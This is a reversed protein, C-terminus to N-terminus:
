FVSPSFEEDEDDDDTAICRRYQQCIDCGPLRGVNDFKMGCICDPLGTRTGDEYRLKTNLDLGYGRVWVRSGPEFTCSVVMEDEIARLGGIQRVVFNQMVRYTDRLAYQAVMKLQRITCNKPVIVMVGPSLPRTLVSELEDFSPLVQCTLAMLKEDKVPKQLSWEKIFQNTDLVVRTAYTVMESETYGLLVNKYLFSLDEDVTFSSSSLRGFNNVKSLNIGDQIQIKVRKAAPHKSYSVVQDGVMIKEMSKLVFNILEMDDIFERAKNHLESWSMINIGGNAQLISLILQAAYNLREQCWRHDSFLVKQPHEETEKVDTERITFELLRTMPNSSRSVVLNGVSFSRISKLVFDILGTDGICKRAEERLDYRSMGFREDGNAKNEELLSVIIKLAHKLRKSPWRCGNNALKSVFADLSNPNEELVKKDREFVKSYNTAATGVIGVFCSKSDLMYQLLDSITILSKASANRYMDIIVNIKRGNKSNKFDHVVRDLCLSSLFQVATEYEQETSGDNGHGFGYGWKAFWCRGYAVGYLLRLEMKEEKFVDKVSVKRTNLITCLHDWFNMVDNSTLCDSGNISILHGYGNCHILGHLFHTSIKEFDAKLPKNWYAKAPIVIHYRRKSVFHHGWGSFKCHDCFPSTSLEATEEVVFVQFIGGNLNVKLLVSWVSMGLVKYKQMVGFDNLFRLISERFPRKMLKEEKEFGTFDHHRQKRKKISFIENCAELVNSISSSSAM